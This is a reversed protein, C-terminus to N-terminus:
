RAQPAHPEPALPVTFAFVSGSAGDPRAAV